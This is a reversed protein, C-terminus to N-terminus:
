AEVGTSESLRVVSTLVPYRWSQSRYLYACLEYGDLRQCRSDLDEQRADAIRNLEEEFTERYWEPIGSGDLSGVLDILADKHTAIYM